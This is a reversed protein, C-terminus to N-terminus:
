FCVTLKAKAFPNNCSKSLINLIDKRLCLFHSSPDLFQMGYLMGLLIMITVVQEKCTFYAHSINIILEKAKHSIM